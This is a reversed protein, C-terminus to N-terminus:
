AGKREFDELNMYMIEVRNGAMELRQIAEKMKETMMSTILLYDTNTRGEKIDEELFFDFYTTVGLKLQAFTEMLHSLHQKSSEPEIRIVERNNEDVYGNCGFGTELGN